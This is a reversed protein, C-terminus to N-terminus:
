ITWNKFCRFKPKWRGARLEWFSLVYKFLMVVVVVFFGVFM